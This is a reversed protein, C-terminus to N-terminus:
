HSKLPTLTDLLEKEKAEAEIQAILPGLYPTDEADPTWEDKPLLKHSLSCQVARRM